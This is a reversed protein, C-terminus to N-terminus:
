KKEGLDMQEMVGFLLIIVGIGLTSPGWQIIETLDIGIHYLLMPIVMMLFGALMLLRGIEFKNM